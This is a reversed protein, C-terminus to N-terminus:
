SQVGEQNRAQDLLSRVRAGCFFGQCPGMMVRTRRKLAKLGVPPLSSDLVAQVEGLTIRECHCLMERHAPDDALKQDDAWPRADQEALSPVRVPVVTDKRPADLIQPIVSGVVHEAIGLAGSLGTSRIGGVSIWRDAPRPIIRYDPDDSAPRMGAWSTTVRHELLEPIQVRAGALLAALGEPTTRRDEPDDVEEATPGLLVNGFITPQVGIGRSMASPAASVIMNCLPAASKDFLIYQGRRPQIVFDDFGALRDLADGYLGACNIVLRSALTGNPVTLNWLGNARQVATVPCSARYVVGNAVADLAYAVPTSFPDIIGEDPAWIAAELGPALTPLRERAEAADLLRVNEFGGEHATDVDAALRAAEDPTRATVLHGCAWIPLGLGPAEDRYREYGRAVSAREISGSPTDWGSCLWATNGKSAGEGLDSAAELLATRLDFRSFDRAVACGVVGAGIVVVDFEEGM